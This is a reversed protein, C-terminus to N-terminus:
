LCRWDSAFKRPSPQHGRTEFLKRLQRACGTRFNHKTKDSIKPHLEVPPLCLRGAAWIRAAFLCCVARAASPVHKAQSGTQRNAMPRLSPPPRPARPDPLRPIFELIHRQLSLSKVEHHCGLNQTFSASFALHTATFVRSSLTTQLCSSRCLRLVLTSLTSLPCPDSVHHCELELTSLFRKNNLRLSFCGHCEDDRREGSGHWNSVHTRM